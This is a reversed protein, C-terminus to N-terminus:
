SRVGAYVTTSANAVACFAQSSSGGSCAPQTKSKSFDLVTNDGYAVVISINYLNQASPVQQVKLQTIRMQNDLMEVAGNSALKAGTPATCGSNGPLSDKLLGYNGASGSGYTIGTSDNAMVSIGNVSTYTYRTSGVCMYTYGNTGTSAPLQIASSTQMNNAIDNLVQTAVNQTNTVSVGKYFLHGVGLFGALAALLVVSFVSTALLLEIITFGSTKASPIQIKLM